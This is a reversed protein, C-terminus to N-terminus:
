DHLLFLTIDKILNSHINVDTVIPLLCLHSIESNKKSDIKRFFILDSITRPFIDYLNSTIEKQNLLQLILELDEFSYVLMYYNQQIILNKHIIKLNIYKIIQKDPVIDFLEELTERIATEIYTKDNPDKKGGLGNISPLKKNPQYGCLVLKGDTFFTGASTYKISNDPPINKIISKQKSSIM